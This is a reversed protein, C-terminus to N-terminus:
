IKKEKEKRIIEQIEHKARQLDDNVVVYDYLPAQDLEYKVRRMRERLAAEDESGRGALRRELEEMSPPAGIIRVARQAKM